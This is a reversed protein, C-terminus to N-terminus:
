SAGGVERRRRGPPMHLLQSATQVHAQFGAGAVRGPHALSLNAHPKAIAPMNLM